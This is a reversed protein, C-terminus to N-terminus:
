AIPRVVIHNGNREVIEVETGPPIYSGNSVVNLIENDLKIKGAPRLATYTVGTRGVYELDGLQDPVLDPRLHPEDHAHGPVGDLSPPAILERVFPIRPLMINFVVALAIVTALAAAILTFSGSVQSLNSGATGWSMESITMSAMILSAFLLIIGTIGFIGFGPLVFVEVLILGIAFLFLIVELWGATGGLFRSWFFLVFCFASLAGFFGSVFNAEVYILVLGAVILLFHALPSNLVFLLTDMWTMELPKLQYDPSIGLREKLEDVGDVPPETLKLEHAREAGVTLLKENDEQGSEPIKPGQIWKGGEANIEHETMYWLQGTERNRVEFVSLKRDTMAEAIAAPRHKKKALENLKARIPGIIKEPAREFAQGERIEIPGADGIQASPEMYIQDCALAVIAAGSIAEQPVYAVTLVKNSDLNALKDALEISTNLYGGPSDIELIIINAGGKVSRDIQRKLFNGIVPEIVD